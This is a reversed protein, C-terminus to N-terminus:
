PKGASSWPLAGAKYKAATASDQGTVIDSWTRGSPINGAPQSEATNTTTGASGSAPSGSSGAAPGSHTLIESQTRAHVEEQALAAGGMLLIASISTMALRYM